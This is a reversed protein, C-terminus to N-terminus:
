RRARNATDCFPRSIRALESDGCISASQWCHCRLAAASALLAASPGVYRSRLKHRLVPHLSVPVQITNPPESGACAGSCTEVGNLELNCRCNEVVTENGDTLLVPCAGARALAVGCMGTGCGLEACFKGAIPLICNQTQELNRIRTKNLGDPEHM